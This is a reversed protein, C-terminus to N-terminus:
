LSSRKKLSCKKKAVFKKLEPVWEFYLDKKRESLYLKGNLMNPQPRIDGKLFERYAVAQVLMPGIDSVLM